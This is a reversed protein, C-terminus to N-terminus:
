PLPPLTGDSRLLPLVPRKEISQANTCANLIEVHTRPRVICALDSASLDLLHDENSMGAVDPCGSQLVLLFLACRAISVREM